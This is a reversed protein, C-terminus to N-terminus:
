TTKKRYWNQCKNQHSKAYDKTELNATKTWFGPFNPNPTSYNSNLNVDQHRGKGFLTKTKTQEVAKQRVKPAKLDMKSTNPERKTAEPSNNTDNQTWTPRNPEMTTGHQDMQSWKPAGSFRGQERRYEFFM